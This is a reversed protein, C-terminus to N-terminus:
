ALLQRLREGTIADAPYFAELALESLTVETPTGFVTITSFLALEGLPSRLRLLMAVDAMPQDEVHAGAQEPPLPYASLEDVLQALVPDGSAMLLRRVRELIYRRWQALNIIQPALGRPHLSIRLVNAPAVLLEPAVNAMLREAPRNCLLLNWHRDVALAPYPAHAHLVRLVAEHAVHLNASALASEAFQPAYGGALLLQNRARLPLELLKGLHLILERSPQSRGTEVFSLHRTSIEADGALDLQSLRRRQRWERVLKGVSTPANM